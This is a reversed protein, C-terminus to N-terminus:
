GHEGIVEDDVKELEVLGIGMERFKASMEDLHALIEVELDIRNPYRRRITARIKSDVKLLASIEAETTAKMDAGRIPRFRM